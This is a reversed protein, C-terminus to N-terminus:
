SNKMYASLRLFSHVSSMRSGCHDNNEITSPLSISDEVGTMIETSRIRHKRSRSFNKALENLNGVLANGEKLQSAVVKDKTRVLRDIASAGCKDIDHADCAEDDFGVSQSSM